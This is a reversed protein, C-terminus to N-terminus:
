CIPPARSGFAWLFQFTSPSKPSQIPSQIDEIVGSDLSFLSQSPAVFTLSFFRYTVQRNNFGKIKPLKSARYCCNPVRHHIVRHNGLSHNGNVPSTRSATVCCACKVVSNPVVTQLKSDCSSCGPCLHIQCLDNCLTAASVNLVLLLSAIYTLLIRMLSQSRRNM